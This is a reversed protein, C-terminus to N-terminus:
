QGTFFCACPFAQHPECVKVPATLGSAWDGPCPLLRNEGGARDEFLFTQSETQLRTGNDM